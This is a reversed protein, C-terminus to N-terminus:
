SRKVKNLFLFFCVIVALFYNIFINRMFIIKFENESFFFFFCRFLIVLVYIFFTM